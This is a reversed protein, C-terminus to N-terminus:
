LDDETIDGEDAVVDGDENVVANAIPADPIAAAAPKRAPPLVKADPWRALIAKVVPHATLKSAEEARRVDEMEALTPDGPKTPSRSM